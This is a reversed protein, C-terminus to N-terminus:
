LAGKNCVDLDVLFPHLVVMEERDFVVNSIEGNLKRLIDDSNVATVLAVQEIDACVLLPEAVKDGWTSVSTAVISLVENLVFIAINFDVGLGLLNSSKFPLFGASHGL